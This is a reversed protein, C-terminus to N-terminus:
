TPEGPTPATLVHRVVNMITNDHSLRFGFDEWAMIERSILEGVPGPYVVTARYAANRLNQKEHHDLCAPRDTAGRHESYVPEPTTDAQARESASM